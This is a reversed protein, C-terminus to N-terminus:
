AAKGPTYPPLAVAVPRAAEPPKHLSEVTALLKASAECLAKAQEILIGADRLEPAVGQQHGWLKRFRYVEGELEELPKLVANLKQREEQWQKLKGRDSRAVDSM